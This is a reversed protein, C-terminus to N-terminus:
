KKPVNVNVVPAVTSVCSLSTGQGAYQVQKTYSGYCTVNGDKFKYVTIGDNDILTNTIKEFNDLPTVKYLALAFTTSAMFTVALLTALTITKM